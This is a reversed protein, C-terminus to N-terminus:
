ASRRKTIAVRKTWPKRVTVSSTRGVDIAHLAIAGLALLMLSMATTLSM